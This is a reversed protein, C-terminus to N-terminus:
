CGGLFPFPNLPEDLNNYWHRYCHSFKVGCSLFLNIFPFLCADNVLIGYLILLFLVLAM